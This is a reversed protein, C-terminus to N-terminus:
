DTKTQAIADLAIVLGAIPSNIVNVFMGRLTEMPPISAIMEMESKNMFKGEFVGGIISINEKHKKAFVSISSAPLVPDDGFALAVEGELPPLEGEIKADALARKILTKRAVSYTIDKVRLLSRLENTDAVNLGHFNVFVISQAKTAADYLAKVIHGKKERTIM